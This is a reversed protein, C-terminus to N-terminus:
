LAQAIQSDLRQRLANELLYIREQRSQENQNGEPVGNDSIIFVDEIREGLTTIRADILDIGLEAFLLGITALLGPRDAAVINLEYTDSGTLRSLTVETPTPLQKLQRSLRRKVPRPESETDTLLRSLHEKL